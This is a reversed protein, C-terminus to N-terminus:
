IQALGRFWEWFDNDELIEPYEKEAFDHLKSYADKHYTYIQNKEQASLLEADILDTDYPCLTLNSFFLENSGSNGCVEVLNEIRIGFKGELYVGPENSVVNGEQLPLNGRPSISIPGEHVNLMHGVGHGTGHGYSYGFKAMESKPIEDLSAGLEEPSFKARALALHGKLVATYARSMEKTASGIAITRTVDTTGTQYQGGTDALLLSNGSVESDKGHLFSYHVVAGNAGFGLIPEFSPGNYESSEKRFSNLIESLESERCVRESPRYKTKLYHVFRTLALGDHLHARRMGDLEVNNKVAKLTEIPSPIEIVKAIHNVYELVRCPTTSPDFILKADSPLNRLDDYIDNYTGDRLTYLKADSLSILAYSYFLPSDDFDSGRKNFFWAVDDLASVFYYDAGHKKMEEQVRSLKSDTSEGSIKIDLDIIPNSKVPPRNEWIKDVFNYDKIELTSDCNSSSDSSNVSDSINSVALFAATTYVGMDVALTKILGNKNYRHILSDYLETDEYGLKMLQMEPPLQEAAQLFYRSDTWLFGEDKTLLVDGASGTFGTLFSIEHYHADLMESGHPDSMPILYADVDADQMLERIQEIRKSFIGKNNKKM